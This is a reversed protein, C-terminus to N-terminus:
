STPRMRPAKVPAVISWDGVSEDITQGAVGAFAKDRVPLVTRDPNFKGMAEGLARQLEEIGKEDSEVVSKLPSGPLSQEVALRQEAPFVGIIVATGPKLAESVKDQIAATVKSGAFKGM